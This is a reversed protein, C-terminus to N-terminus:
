QFCRDSQCLQGVFRDHCVPFEVLCTNTTRGTLPLPGAPNLNPKCITSRM